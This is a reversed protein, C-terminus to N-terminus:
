QWGTGYPTGVSSMKSFVDPNAVWTMKVLRNITQQPQANAPASPTASPKTKSKTTSAKPKAAPYFAAKWAAILSSKTADDMTPWSTRLQVWIRPLHSFDEKEDQSMTAFSSTLADALQSREIADIHDPEKGDVANMMFYGLEEYAGEMQKTLGPTGSVLPTNAANFISLGWMAMDSGPDLDWNHIANEGTQIAAWRNDSLNMSKIQDRLALINITRKIEDQNGSKWSDVLYKQITAGQALTLPAELCWQFFNTYDAVMQSTLPPNGDAVVNPTAPSQAHLMCPLTLLAVLCLLSRVKMSRMLNFSNQSTAM